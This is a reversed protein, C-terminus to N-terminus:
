GKLFGYKYVKEAIKAALVKQAQRLSGILAMYQADASDKNMKGNKDRGQFYARIDYFSANPNAQPQEHYYKWLAKGAAFVAQAEASFEIQKDKIYDSMFHSAFVDKADVEQESFPIWHNIGQESSIRNQGHFLTFALCDAQFEMDEKWGDNPYLFQDRDNLWNAEICHRVALYITSIQLNDEDIYFYKGHRKGITNQISVYKNNQYDPADGMLVGVFCKKTKYFNLWENILKDEKKYVYFNKSQIPQSIRDYIDAEIKKIIGKKATNWIMFGIPFQGKVNDFTDAPVAFMKELKAQFVSRFVAFNSAQLIKLKSFEALWCGPIEAWIRIFFQAFLENSAKGIIDKYKEYTKNTTAVKDKFSRGQGSGAEAYPPNIYIVLKKRKQPNNLIELLGEPCKDAFDDNLFDMQFVHSELLNAGNKIRDKMVDVDAKDLTSAWVNYKNTLGALLNGTGACCDWIYYEDQWNEGLVDELYKQSLEVWKQPTFFSGKRERVDQPVLLDRREIIYNWFEKRPPRDYISWFRRYASQGDNFMVQTADQLGLEDKDKRYMLYLNQKLLVFLSNKISENDKSLLDALYFDADIIGQKKAKEWDIQITPKVDQLWKFYVTVFNNKTIIIKSVGVRGLVFNNKIFSKLEKDDKDYYFLQSKRELEDKVLAYLQRFEKTEHNSSTVTWDFDNQAFVESVVNYQVFAIKEADFAGLFVPPLHKEYTKAKGITMILQVFSEYIDQKNGRKAEAWFLSQTIQTENFLEAQKGGSKDTIKAICFDINGIIKTNDYSSFYDNAVKNKLEEERLTNSYAM